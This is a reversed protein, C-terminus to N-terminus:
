PPTSIKRVVASSSPSDDAKGGPFHAAPLWQILPSSEPPKVGVQERLYPWSRIQLACRALLLSCEVLGCLM